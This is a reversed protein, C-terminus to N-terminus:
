VVAAAAQFQRLAAPRIHMFRAGIGRPREAMGGTGSWIVRLHMPDRVGAVVISGSVGGVIGKATTQIFCGGNSLDRLVGFRETGDLTLRCPLHCETRPTSRNRITRGIDDRIANPLFLFRVGYGYSRKSAIQGQCVLRLRGSQFEITVEQGINFSGDPEAIFCGDASLSTIRCEQGGVNVFHQLPIRQSKRWGRRKRQLYPIRLEKRCALVLVAALALVGAVVILQKPRGGLTYLSYPLRTAWVLVTGLLVMSSHAVFMWWTIPNVFFFAAGALPASLLWTAVAPGWLRYLNGIAALPSGHDFHWFSALSALPVLISYAVVVYVL